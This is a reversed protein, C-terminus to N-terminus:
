KRDAPHAALGLYDNSSFGLMTRPASAGALTLSQGPACATEAIQRRRRLSQADLATIEDQLRELLRPMAAEKRQMPPLPWRKWRPSPATSWGTSTTTASRM